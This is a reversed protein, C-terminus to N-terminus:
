VTDVVPIWSLHDKIAPLSGLKRVGVASGKYYPITTAPDVYPTTVSNATGRPHAFQMFVMGPRVGPTVYAVANAAGYDNFVEVLDGAEVQLGGADDPHIELWALPVRESQFPMNVDNYMTQWAVNIRGNTYFFPYKDLQAKVEAPYGPWAFGKFRAKGSDTRFPNGNEFLRVTGQLKGSVLRVPTQIGDHGLRRLLGYTVGTYSEIPGPKQYGAAGEIPAFANGGEVFVQEATTWDFGSFQAAMTANGEAQYLQNLKQAVLGLIAWDPRADGPPDQIQEYLRLRREGNISTMPSEGWAAAPFVVHAKEATKTRYLDQVVIFLGGGDVAQIIAKVQDDISASRVDDLARRVINGRDELVDRMRQANLTTISPNCGGVWFVRGQGEALLPDIYTAPRPTHSDPRVYGEQHGGLRSCGTGPKGLSGTLLALSVISSINEYNKLGWIMGKEYHLLTRRRKKGQKPQAIWSAAKQIDARPVGTITEAEALVDGISRGVQLGKAKYEDVNETRQGIFAQDQWDNELVVRGIANLLAIDTGPKLQLHLVNDRGAAARATAVTTTVRPDAVIMKASRVAEGPFLQRKRQATEGRLNPVMHHLYYNSQTEYSNAGWLVITDALEADLYANNLEPVGMDRSGHVESNYAPRNHISLMRTKIGDFFFRGVAWNNEFGGGGGGHDFFKMFVSDPGHNDISHKVVRAVLEASDEWTTPTQDRGRYVLPYGLRNSTPKDPAYLSAALTGGRVSALGGNVAAKKNPVIVLNYRTGDREQVVTHQEPSIWTGAVAQQAQTFDVGLANQGPNPGGDPSGVPWKYVDYSCGVICYHCVTKLKQAGAPPLPISTKASHYVTM